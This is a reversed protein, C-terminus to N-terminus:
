MRQLIFFVYGYSKSHRRFMEIETECAAYVAEAEAVGANKDKLEMMREMMPTYYDDWWASEPLKFNDIVRYGGGGAMQCVEDTTRMDPYVNAFYERAEKPPRSEFWCMETFAMYGSQKLYARFEKLGRALGIIFVSGEAWLLDFSEEDFPMDTMSLERTEIELGNQTAALDLFDLMPKHNDIAIIKTELEQALIQTQMGCGCGIDLVSPKSPLDNLLGLAKLTAERCGPGQRPLDDFLEYFYEMEMRNDEVNKTLMRIQIVEKENLGLSLLFDQHVDPARREFEIHWRKLATEDLGCAKQLSLWLEMDLGSTNQEGALKKLMGAILRQQARLTTIERGIERLRKELISNDNNVKELLRAIEALSMGAERFFCIRELKSLDDQTYVRYGAKTRESPPLLGIRDYYLLTSRSLGFRRGLETIRYTKM